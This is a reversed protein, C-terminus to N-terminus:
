KHVLRLWRSPLLGKLLASFRHRFIERSLVRQDTVWNLQVVRREGIFRKHGHFSNDSRRFALLTGELPPVEVIVDDINTASRLLRLRGGAQEWSPNMYILVTILKSTADTHISGDSEGCRGRATIMTPRGELDIGFKREFARRTEGANLEDLLGQFTPGFRLGNIPFSGPQDIRPFDAHLAARAGPKIFGPVILYEFPRRTLPTARLAELDLAVM